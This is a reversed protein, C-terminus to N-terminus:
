PLGHPVFATRQWAVTVAARDAGPLQAILSGSWKRNIRSRGHFWILLLLLSSLFLHTLSWTFSCLFLLSNGSREFVNFRRCINIKAAKNLNKTLFWDHRKLKINEHVLKSPTTTILIVTHVKNYHKSPHRSCFSFLLTQFQQPWTLCLEQLGDSLVWVLCPVSPSCLSNYWRFSGVGLHRYLYSPHWIIPDRGWPGLDTRLLRYLYFNQTQETDTGKTRM